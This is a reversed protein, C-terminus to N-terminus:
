NRDFKCRYYQLCQEQLLHLTNTYNNIEEKSGLDDFIITGTTTLITVIKM